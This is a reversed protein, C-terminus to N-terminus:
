GPTVIRWLRTSLDAAVVDPDHDRYNLWYSVVVSRHGEADMQPKLMPEPQTAVAKTAKLEKRMETMVKELDAENSLILTMSFQRLDFASSNLVVGNFATLNPLIALQGDGTRLATTRLKITMVTGTVDSVAIIDGIRFPREVLIIMGALINRLLDQFALGIALTFVGSFTLLLSAPIGAVTLASLAAVVWTIAVVVNHVLTRVQTDGGARHIAKELSAGVFRGAVVVIVFALLPGLVRQIIPGVFGSRDYQNLWGCLDSFTLNKDCSITQALV